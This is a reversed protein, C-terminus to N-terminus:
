TIIESNFLQKIYDEYSDYIPTSNKFFYLVDEKDDPDFKYTIGEISEINIDRSLFVFYHERFIKLPPIKNYVKFYEIAMEDMEKLYEKKRKEYYQDITMIVRVPNGAVVVNDPININVLSCAGIIVNNGITIGKLITTNVGIFVNDGINVKGSSGIVEGNFKYRLVSWDYGHTLVTVGSTVKVNNGIQILWPRTLDITTNKPNYFVTNEGIRVGLSRLYKIFTESDKEKIGLLLLIFNKMKKKFNM